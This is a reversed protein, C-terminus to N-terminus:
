SSSEGDEEVKIHSSIIYLLTGVGLFAFGKSYLRFTFPQCMLFIGILILLTAIWMAFKSIKKM